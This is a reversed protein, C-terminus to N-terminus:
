RAEQILSLPKEDFHSFNEIIIEEFVRRARERREKQSEWEAHKTSMIVDWLHRLKQEKKRKKKEKGLSCIRLQGVKKNVLEEALKSPSSLERKMESITM